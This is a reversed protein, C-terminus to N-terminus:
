NRLKLCKLAIFYLSQEFYINNTTLFHILLTRIVFYDHIIQKNRQTLILSAKINNRKRSLWHLLKTVSFFQFVKECLIEFIIKVHFFGHTQYFSYLRFSSTNEVM